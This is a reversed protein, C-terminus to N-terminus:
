EGEHEINDGDLYLWMHSEVAQLIVERTCNFVMAAEDVSTPRRQMWSWMSLTNCFGTQCPLDNDIDWHDYEDSDSLKTFYASM